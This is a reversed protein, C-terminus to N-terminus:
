RKRRSYRYPDRNKAEAERIMGSVFDAVEDWPVEITHGCVSMTFTPNYLSSDDTEVTEQWSRLVSITESTPRSDIM